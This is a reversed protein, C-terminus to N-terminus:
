TREIEKHLTLPLSVSFVTGKGPTSELKLFGEHDRVIKQCTALGLGTGKTKTTYFPTFIRDLEEPPIGNGDDRIEVVVLPSPRKGKKTLHYESSIRTVIDVQGNRDVAETANMILNLFLQILRDENGQIPPISPDLRLNFTLGRNGKVEKQLLVIDNLIKGLNVDTVVIAPPRALNMLEEIIRNVRETEKIMIETYEQLPNDKSLEMSLLQAAGRIGGLPNKIEHALGAALTGLMSLRDGQRVTEELERVRSLDSIILVAGEKEGDSSFIPSVSVSVPLPAAMPRQLSINEHDTISREGEMVTEILHLLKPQETFIESIARGICQKESLRTFSQAAPNFLTVARNRDLAIVAEGVNELIRAYFGPEVSNKYKGSM